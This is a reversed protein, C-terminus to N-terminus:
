LFGPIGFSEFIKWKVTMPLYFARIHSPKSPIIEILETNSKKLNDWEKQRYQGRYTLLILAAYTVIAILIAIVIKLGTGIIKGDVGGAFVIIILFLSTLAALLNTKLGYKRYVSLNISGSWLSYIIVLLLLLTVNFVFGLLAIAIFPLAIAWKVTEDRINIMYQVTADSTLTNDIKIKLGTKALELTIDMLFYRKVRRSGNSEWRGEVIGSEELSRLRRVVFPESLGMEAALERPYYPRTKLMEIIRLNSEKSLLTAMNKSSM